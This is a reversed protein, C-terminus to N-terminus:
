HPAQIIDSPCHAVRSPSLSFLYTIQNLIFIRPAPHPTAQFLCVHIYSSRKLSHPLAGEGAGPRVSGQGSSPQVFWVTRNAPTEGLRPARDGYNCSYLSFRGPRQSLSVPLGVKWTSGDIVTPCSTRVAVFAFCSTGGGFDQVSRAM